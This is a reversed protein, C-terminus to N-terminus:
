KKQECTRCIGVKEMKFEADGHYFGRDCADRIEAWTYGMCQARGIADAIPDTLIADLVDDKHVPSKTRAM